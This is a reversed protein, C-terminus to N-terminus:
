RVGCGPPIAAPNPPGGEDHEDVVVSAGPLMSLLTATDDSLDDNDDDDALPSEMSVRHRLRRHAHHNRGCIFCGHCYSCDRRRAADTDHGWEKVGCAPNCARGARRYCSNWTFLGIFLLVFKLNGNGVNSHPFLYQFLVSTCATCALMFPSSFHANNEVLLQLLNNVVEVTHRLFTRLAILPAPFGQQILVNFGCLSHISPSMSISARSDETISWHTLNSALCFGTAVSRRTTTEVM